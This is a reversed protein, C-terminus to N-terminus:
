SRARQRRASSGIIGKELEMQGLFLDDGLSDLVETSQASALLAESVRAGLEVTDDRLEHELTTIESTAVYTKKQGGQRLKWYGAM